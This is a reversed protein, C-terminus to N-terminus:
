ASTTRRRECNGGASEQMETLTVQLQEARPRNPIFSCRSHGQKIEGGVADEIKCRAKREEATSRHVASAKNTGAEIKEM